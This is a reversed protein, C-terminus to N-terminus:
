LSQPETDCSPYKDALARKRYESPAVGYTLKFKRAFSKRDYFGVQARVEKIRVFGVLLLESALNIRLNNLHQSPTVRLESKFLQRLRSPSVNVQRALEGIPIERSVDQSMLHLVCIVRPDM